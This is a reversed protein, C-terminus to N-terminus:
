AFTILDSLTNNGPYTLGSVAGVDTWDSGNDSYEFFNIGGPYRDSETFGGLRIGHIDVDSGLDIAIWFGSGVAVVSAWYCRTALSEDNLSSVAGFEPASSSTLTGAVRGGADHFQVEAVELYSVLTVMQRIRWYRHAGYGGGGAPVEQGNVFAPGAVGNVAAISAAAVANIAALM